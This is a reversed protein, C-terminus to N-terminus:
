VVARTTSTGVAGAGRLVAAGAVSLEEAILWGTIRIAAAAEAEGGRQGRLRWAMAVAELHARAEAEDARGAVIEALCLRDTGRALAFRRPSAADLGLEAAAMLLVRGVAGLAVEAFGEDLFEGPIRGQRLTVALKAVDGLARRDTPQYLWAM